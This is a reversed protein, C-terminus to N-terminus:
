VILLKRDQPRQQEDREVSAAAVPFWFLLSLVHGRAESEIGQSRM